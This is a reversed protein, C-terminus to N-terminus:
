DMGAFASPPHREDAALWARASEPDGFGRRVLVQATVHTLGLEEELRRVAASPCPTLDLRRELPV